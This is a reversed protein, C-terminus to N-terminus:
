RSNLVSLLARAGRAAVAMMKRQGMIIESPTIKSHGVPITFGSSHQMIATLISLNGEINLLKYKVQTLVASADPLLGLESLSEVKSAAAKLAKQREQTDFYAIVSTCADIQTAVRRRNDSGTEIAITYTEDGVSLVVVERDRETTAPASEVIATATSM